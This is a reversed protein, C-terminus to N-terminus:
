DKHSRKEKTETEGRTESTKFLKRMLGMNDPHLTQDISAVYNDEIDDAQTGKETNDQPNERMRGHWYHVWVPRPRLDISDVISPAFRKRASLFAGNADPRHATESINFLKRMLGMDHPHLSLERLPPYPDDTDDQLMERESDTDDPQDIETNGQIDKIKMKMLNHVWVPGPRFNRPNDISHAFRKHLSLSAGNADLERMIKFLKRMLGMDDPHLSLQRSPPYIDDTDDQLMGKESDPDGPQTEREANDQIDKMKMKMMTHVWVPDPRFNRSDDISRAFRKNLSASAGITDFSYTMVMVVIEMLLFDKCRTPEM